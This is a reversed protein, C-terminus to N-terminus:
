PKEGTPADFVRTYLITGDITVGALESKPIARKSRLWKTSLRECFAAMADDREIDAVAEDVPKTPSPSPEEPTDSGTPRHHKFYEDRWKEANDAWNSPASQRWNGGYANGIIRWASLESERLREMEAKMDTWDRNLVLPGAECQFDCEEIKQIVNPRPQQRPKPRIAEKPRPDVAQDQMEGHRCAPRDPKIPMPNPSCWCTGGKEGLLPGSLFTCARCTAPKKSDPLASSPSGVVEVDEELLTFEHGENQPDALVRIHGSEVGLIAMLTDPGGGAWAVNYIDIRM